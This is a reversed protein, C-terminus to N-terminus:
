RTKGTMQCPFARAKVVLITPLFSPKLLSLKLLFSASFSRPISLRAESSQPLAVISPKAKAEVVAGEAFTIPREGKMVEM